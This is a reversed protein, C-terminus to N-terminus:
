VREGARLAARVRETSLAYGGVVPESVDQGIWHEVPSTWARELLIPGPRVASGHASALARAVVTEPAPRGESASWLRAAGFTHWANFVGLEVFATTSAEFMSPGAVGRVAEIARPWTQPRAVGPLLQLLLPSAGRVGILREFVPGGFLVEIANRDSDHANAVWAVAADLSARAAPLTTAREWQGDPALQIARAAQTM